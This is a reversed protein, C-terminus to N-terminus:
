GATILDSAPGAFPIAGYRGQLYGKAINDGERTRIDTLPYLHTAGHDDKETFWVQDRRLLPSRMLNADHTTAIMQAGKPNTEPSSFLALVAECAKTHLSADLEDIVLVAGEDLVRFVRGLLVLLRRTGASERSLKFYVAEGDHGRHALEIAIDKGENGLDFEVPVDVFKKVASFFIRRKEQDDEPVEEEREQYGVVGTGVKELVEIVRGNLGSKDALRILAMGGSVSFATDVRLTQFFNAVKSLEEHDNQAAASLFLSNPRTLDSIVKNRGRLGRGFHFSKGKREFLIQRRSTRFSYLWEANFAESSAEFGYHYRVDDVVFDADFTSPAAACAPDLLFPKCPLSGGPEGRRHSLLITDRMFDLAAVLNSKGSANAGYIIAAPVAHGNPAAACEILGAKSDKLSSAALSLEQRDRISLHNEVGFRLLM